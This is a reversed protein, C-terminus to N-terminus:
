LYLVKLIQKSAYKLKQVIRLLSNQLSTDRMRQDVLILCTCQTSIVNVVTIIIIFTSCEILIGIVIISGILHVCRVLIPGAM